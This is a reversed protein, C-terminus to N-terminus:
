DRRVVPVQFFHQDTNVYAQLVPVDRVLLQLRVFTSIFLLKEFCRGLYTKVGILLSM